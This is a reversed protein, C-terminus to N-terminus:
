LVYSLSHLPCCGVIPPCCPLVKGMGGCLRLIKADSDVVYESSEWLFTGHTVQSRLTPICGVSRLLSNSLKRTFCPSSCGDVSKRTGCSIYIRFRHHNRFGSFWDIWFIHTKDTCCLTYKHLRHITSASSKHQHTQFIYNILTFEVRTGMSIPHIPIVCFISNGNWQKQDYHTHKNCEGKSFIQYWNTIARREM